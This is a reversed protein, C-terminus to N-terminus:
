ATHARDVMIAAADIESGRKRNGFQGDSLLGRREAEEPLLEAVVKEVVKGMCRLLSISRYAKLKTYDDKGPNRIVVGSAWMWVAPHLGTPVAGKALEVIREKDWRWLLHVAGFSLKDPGPAKKVSQAFLAREVAQENVYRHAQGAPLLKFYQDYENPPFSERRLIEQKQAITNAQKGDRDTLAEMTMGARPNASKAARCVEPRRLNKVYDNWMKDKARWVSKQLEAKAQATAASRCRRRKERGHQSRKEKIKGNWWRKSHACIMIKKATADLVKSL